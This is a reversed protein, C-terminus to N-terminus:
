QLLRAECTNRNTPSSKPNSNVRIKAVLLKGKKPPVVKKALSLIKRPMAVARAALTGPNEHREVIVSDGAASPGSSAKEDPSEDSWLIGGISPEHVMENTWPDSFLEERYAGEASDGVRHDM